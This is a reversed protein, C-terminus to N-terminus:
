CIKEAETATISLLRDRVQKLAIHRNIDYSWHRNIGKLRERRLLRNLRGIMTQKQETCATLIQSLDLGCCLQLAATQSANLRDEEKAKLFTQTEASLTQSM